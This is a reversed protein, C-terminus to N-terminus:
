RTPQQHPLETTVSTTDCGTAIKGLDKISLIRIVTKNIHLKSPSKSPKKKMTKRGQKADSWVINELGEAMQLGNRSRFTLRRWAPHSAQRRKEVDSSMSVPAGPPSADADM